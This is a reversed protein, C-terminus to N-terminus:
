PAGSGRVLVLHKCRPALGRALWTSMEADLMNRKVNKGFYSKNDTQIQRQVSLLEHPRKVLRCGQKYKQLVQLNNYNIPKIQNTLLQVHAQSM